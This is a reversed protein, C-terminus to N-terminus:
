EDVIRLIWRYWGYLKEEHTQEREPKTETWPGEYGCVQCYFRGDPDALLPKGCCHGPSPDNQPSFSEKTARGQAWIFKPPHISPWDNMSFRRKGKYLIGNEFDEYFSAYGLIPTLNNRRVKTITCKVSGAM